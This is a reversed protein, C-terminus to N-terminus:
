ENKNEGCVILQDVIAKLIKHLMKIDNIYKITAIIEGNDWPIHKQIIHEHANCNECKEELKNNQFKIEEYEKFDSNITKTDEQINFHIINGNEDRTINDKLSTVVPCKGVLGVCDKLEPGHVKCGTKTVIGCEDKKNIISM